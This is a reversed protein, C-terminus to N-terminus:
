HNMIFELVQQYRPKLLKILKNEKETVRGKFVFSALVPVAGLALILSGFIAFGVVYAMPAFLKGEMGQLTLIPVYVMLIILVGFFIPRAVEIAGEKITNIMEDNEHHELKHVINEMMVVSGDVVMGFDIAGLSMLNASLGLWNMGIFTFFMSFPIVAAVILAAKLNGLFVVLVLVVLLGGEILNTQVTNITRLVLNTQDYFSEIEIVQPKLMRNMEDVKGQIREIVERSNEGRLMM